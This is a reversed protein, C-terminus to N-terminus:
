GADGELIKCIGELFLKSRSALVVQVPKNLGMSSRGYSNRM